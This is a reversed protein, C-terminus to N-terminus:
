LLTSVLRPFRVATPTPPGPHTRALAGCGFSGVKGPEASFLSGVQCPSPQPRLLCEPFAPTLFLISFFFHLFPFLHLFLIFAIRVRTYTYSICIHVPARLTARPPRPCARLPRAPLLRGPSRRGAPPLSPYVPLATPTPQGPNSPLTCRSLWKVSHAARPSPTGGVTECGSSPPPYM